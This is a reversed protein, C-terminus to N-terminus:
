FPLPKISNTVSKLSKDNITVEFSIIEGLNVEENPGIVLDFSVPEIYIRAIKEGSIELTQVVKGKLPFQKQTLKSKM